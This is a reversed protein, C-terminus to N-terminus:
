AWCEVKVLNPATADPINANISGKDTNKASPVSCVATSDGAGVAEWTGSLPIAYLAKLM